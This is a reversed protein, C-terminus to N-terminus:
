AEVCFDRMSKTDDVEDIDRLLYQHGGGCLERVGSGSRGASGESSWSVCRALFVCNVDVYVVKFIYGRPSPPRQPLEISMYDM